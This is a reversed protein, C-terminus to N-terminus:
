YHAACTKICYFLNINFLNIILFCILLLSKYLFLDISLPRNYLLSDGIVAMKLEGNTLKYYLCAETTLM